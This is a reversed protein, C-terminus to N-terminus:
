IKGVGWSPMIQKKEIADLKLKLEQLTEDKFGMSSCYAGWMFVSEEIYGKRFLRDRVFAGPSNIMYVGPNDIEVQMEQRIADYNM